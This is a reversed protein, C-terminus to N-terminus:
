IFTAMKLKEPAQTITQSGLSPETRKDRLSVSNLGIIIASVSYGNEKAQQLYYASVTNLFTCMGTIDYNINPQWKSEFKQWVWNPQTKSTMYVKNDM